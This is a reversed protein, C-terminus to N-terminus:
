CTIKNLRWYVMYSSTQPLCVNNTTDEVAMEKEKQGQQCLKSVRHCLLQFHCVRGWNAQYTPISMYGCKKSNQSHNEERIFFCLFIDLLVTCVNRNKGTLIHFLAAVAIRQGCLKVSVVCHPHFASTHFSLSLTNWWSSLCSCQVLEPVGKKLYRM